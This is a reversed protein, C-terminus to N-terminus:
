YLIHSLRISLAQRSVQFAKALEALESDDDDVAPAYDLRTGAIKKMLLDYPMLLEAAFQNAEIEELVSGESSQADRRRIRFGRDAHPTTYGHLILHGLEHAITFRQRVATHLSNVVIVWSGADLPVLMGSVEGQIPQKLVDAYSRAIKEVPVPANRIKHEALIRRAERRAKEITRM